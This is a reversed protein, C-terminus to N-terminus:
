RIFSVPFIFLFIGITSLHRQPSYGTTVNELWDVATSALIAPPKYLQSEITRKITDRLARTTFRLYYKKMLQTVLILGPSEETDPMKNQIDYLIPIVITVYIGNETKKVGEM